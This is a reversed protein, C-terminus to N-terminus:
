VTAFDQRQSTRHRRLAAAFRRLAAVSAAGCRAAASRRADIRHGIREMAAIAVCLAFRRLAAFGAHAGVINRPAIAVAIRRTEADAGIKLGIGIMAAGAAMRTRVVFYAGGARAFIGPEDIADADASFRTVARARIYIGVIGIAAIAADCAALIFYASRSLADIIRGGRARRGFLETEAAADIEYGIRRVASRARCLAFAAFNADVPQAFGIAGARRAAAIRAGIQLSVGAVAAFAAFRAQFSFRAGFSCASAAGPMVIAVAVGVVAAFRLRRTRAHGSM